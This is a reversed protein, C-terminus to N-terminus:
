QTSPKIKTSDREKVAISDITNVPSMWPKFNKARPGKLNLQNGSQVEAYVQNSDKKSWPKANKADPGKLFDKQQVYVIKSTKSKKTWPKANKAAPGQLRANSQSFGFNAIILLCVAIILKKM